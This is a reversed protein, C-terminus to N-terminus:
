VSSCYDSSIFQVPWDAEGIFQAVCLITVILVSVCAGCDVLVYVQRLYRHRAAGVDVAAAQSRIADSTDLNVPRQPGEAVRPTRYLVGHAVTSMLCLTTRETTPESPLSARFGRRPKRAGDRDEQGIALFARRICPRRKVGDVSM